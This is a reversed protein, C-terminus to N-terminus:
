RRNSRSRAPAGTADLNVDVTDPDLNWMAGSAPDIVLWGIIVASVLNGALYWAGVRGEIYASEPRYGDKEVSVKYTAKSFFGAGRELRITCPTEDKACEVGARDTLVVKAGFPSSTFTVDQKGGHIISACSSLFMLLVLGSGSLLLRRM